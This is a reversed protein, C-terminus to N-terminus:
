PFFFFSQSRQFASLSLSPLLSPSLFFRRGEPESMWIATVALTHPPLLWSSRAEELEGLIVCPGLRKPVNTSLEIPLPAALAEVPAWM